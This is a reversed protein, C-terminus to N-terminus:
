GVHGDLMKRGATLITGFNGPAINPHQQPLVGRERGRVPLYTPPNGDSPWSIQVDDM